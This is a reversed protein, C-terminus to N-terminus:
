PVIEVAAILHNHFIDGAINQYEDRAFIAIITGLIM